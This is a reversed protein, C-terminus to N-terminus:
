GHFHVAFDLIDTYIWKLSASIIFAFTKKSINPKEQWPTHGPRIRIVYLPEIEESIRGKEQWDFAIAEELCCLLETLLDKEKHWLEARIDIETLREVILRSGREMTFFNPTLWM